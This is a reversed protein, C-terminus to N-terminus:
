VSMVSAKAIGERSFPAAFGYRRWGDEYDVNVEREGDPPFAIRRHAYYRERLDEGDRKAAYTAYLSARRGATRNPGSRHALHSGFFLIDGAELLVPVWEHKAIWAESLRGGNALDVNMKHSGPVIELCGNGITAAEIAFNATVHEVKCIHDYAPADLHAHFGNGGPLKYNIKDKFLLMDEGSLQKIISGLADSFLLAGLQPHYDALKETRM